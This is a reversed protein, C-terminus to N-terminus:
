ESLCTCSIYLFYLSGTVIVGVSGEGEQFLHVWNDCSHLRSRSTWSRYQLIKGLGLGVGIKVKAEFRSRCLELGLGLDSFIVDDITKGIKSFLKQPKLKSM